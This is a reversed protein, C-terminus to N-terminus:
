PAIQGIATNVLSRLEITSDPEAHLQQVKEYSTLEQLARGAIAKRGAAFAEDTLTYVRDSSTAIGNTRLWQTAAENLHVSEGESVRVVFGILAQPPYQTIKLDVGSHQLEYQTLPGIKTKSFVDGARDSETSTQSSEGVFLM